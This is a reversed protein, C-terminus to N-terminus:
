PESMRVSEIYTETSGIHTLIATLTDPEYDGFAFLGLAIPERLSPVCM